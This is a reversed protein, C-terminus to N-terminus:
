PLEPITEQPFKKEFFACIDEPCLFEVRVGQDALAPWWKLWKSDTAQLIVPKAPHANAVAPFKRDPPDFAPELEAVPFEAFRDEQYETLAVQCVRAPNAQNQLLWKLFAGGVSNPQNANLKNQYEQLIRYGDDIVVTSANRVRQLRDICFSLCDDSVDQHRGDAVLLVNTDIVVEAADM